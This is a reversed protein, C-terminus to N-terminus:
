VQSVPWSWTPGAVCGARGRCAPSTLRDRQQFGVPVSRKGASTSLTGSRSTAAAHGAAGGRRQRVSLPTKMRV